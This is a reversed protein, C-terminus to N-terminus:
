CQNMKRTKGPNGQVSSVDRWPLKSSICVIEEVEFKYNRSDARNDSSWKEKFTMCFSGPEWFGGRCENEEASLRRQLENKSLKLEDGVRLEAEQATGM